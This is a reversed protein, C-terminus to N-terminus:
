RMGRALHDEECLVMPRDFSVEAGFSAFDVQAIADELSAAVVLARRGYLTWKEPDSSSEGVVFLRLGEKRENEAM